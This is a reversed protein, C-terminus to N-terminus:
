PCKNGKRLNEKAPLYQLNWPVHLGCVNKGKLPIIHDVHYGKPCNRYIEAIADLDVWKPTAKGQYARRGNVRAIHKYKNRRYEQRDVERVRERNDEIYAKQAEKRKPDKWRLRDYERLKELNRQRYERMKALKKDRKRYYANSWKERM